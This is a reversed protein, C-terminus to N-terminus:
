PRIILRLAGDFCPMSRYQGFKDDWAGSALDAALHQTFRDKVEQSVFNWASQAKTVGPNLFAEPRAYYAETFGDTCNIPIPIHQVQVQTQLQPNSLAQVISNIALFRHREAQILEPVYHDLWFRHLSDGDFTVIVISGRTVRRLEDLGKTANQWQHVTLIAMSADVSADDLPISEARADIAPSLHLPRQARMTSSPEIAIVHRDLPEYSGAGAGINLVTRASGLAAHIQAQIRSDPQRFKSYGTGIMAYDVDGAPPRLPSTSQSM